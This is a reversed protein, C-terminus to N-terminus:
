NGPPGRDILRRLTAVLTPVEVPKELFADILTRFDPESPIAATLLVIPLGQFGPKARIERIMEIGNMYPMMYDSLVVDPIAEILCHLGHRGDSAQTVRFGEMELVLTM